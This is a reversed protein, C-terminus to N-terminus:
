SDTVAESQPGVNALGIKGWIEVAFQAFEPLFVQARSAGPLILNM